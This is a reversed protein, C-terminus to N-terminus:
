DVMKLHGRNVMFRFAKRTFITDSLKLVTDWNPSHRRIMDEYAYWNDTFKRFPNRRCIKFSPDKPFKTGRKKDTMTANMIEYATHVRARNRLTTMNTDTVKGNHVVIAHGTVLVLYTGTKFKKCFQKTTPQRMASCGKPHCDYLLITSVTEFELGLDRMAQPIAINPMGNCTTNFGYSQCVQIIEDEHLDTRLHHVAVPFCNNRHASISM